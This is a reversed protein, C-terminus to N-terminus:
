AVVKALAHAKAAKKWNIALETLIADAAQQDADSTADAYLQEGKARLYQMFATKHLKMPDRSLVQLEDKLSWLANATATPVVYRLQTM